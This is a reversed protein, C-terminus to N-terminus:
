SAGQCCGASRPSRAGSRTRPRSPLSTAGYNEILRDRSVFQDTEVPGVSWVGEGLDTSQATRGPTTPDIPEAQRHEIASMGSKALM